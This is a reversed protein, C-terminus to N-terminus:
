VGKTAPILVPVCLEEGGDFAVSNVVTGDEAVFLPVLHSGAGGSERVISVPPNAYESHGVEGESELPSAESQSAMHDETAESYDGITPGERTSSTALMTSPILSFLLHLAMLASFTSRLKNSVNTAITGFM